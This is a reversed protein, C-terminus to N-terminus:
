RLRIPTGLLCWGIPDTALPSLAQRLTLGSFEFESRCLWVVNGLAQDNAAPSPLVRGRLFQQAGEADRRLGPCFVNTGARKRAVDAGGVPPYNAEAESHTFGSFHLDQCYKWIELIAANTSFQQVPRTRLQRILAM